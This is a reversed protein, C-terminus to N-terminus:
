KPSTCSVGSLSRQTIYIFEYKEMALEKVKKAISSQGKPPVKRKRTLIIVYEQLQGDYFDSCGTMIAYKKYKAAVINYKAIPRTINGSVHDYQINFRATAVSGNQLTHPVLTKSTKLSDGLRYKGDYKRTNSIIGTEDYRFSGDGNDTFTVEQCVLTYLPRMNYQKFVYWRGMFAKFRFNPVVNREPCGASKAQEAALVFLLLLASLVSM